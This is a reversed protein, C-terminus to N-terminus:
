IGWKIDYVTGAHEPDDNEIEAVRFHTGEPTYKKMLGWYYGYFIDKPYPTNIIAQAHGEGLIKGWTGEEPRLNRHVTSYSAAMTAIVSEMTNIEPPFGMTEVSKIGISVLNESLNTLGEEIERYLNVINQQPYWAEPDIEAFGHKKLLPMIEDAKLCIPLALLSAGLVEAGPAASFKEIKQAKQIAV